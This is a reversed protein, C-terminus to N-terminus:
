EIRLANAQCAAVVKRVDEVSANEPEIVFAGNEIKFVQPLTRVCNGSHCCAKEDWVVKMIKEKNFRNISFNV